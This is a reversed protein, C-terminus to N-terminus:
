SHRRMPMRGLIKGAMKFGMEAVKKAPATVKPIMAIEKLRQDLFAETASRDANPNAVWYLLTASYVGALTARKTYFSLDKEQDGTLRWMRDVTRYLTSAAIQANQPRALIKLAQTVAERHPEANELRCLVAARIIASIKEPRPDIEDLSKAMDRDALDTFADIAAGDNPLMAKANDYTMELDEAAARLATDGWGDFPVHVLMASILADRTEIDSKMTEEHAKDQSTKQTTDTTKAM